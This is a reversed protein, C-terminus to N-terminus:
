LLVDQKSPLGPGSLDDAEETYETNRQSADDSCALALRINFPGDVFERSTEPVAADGLVFTSILLMIMGRRDSLNTACGAKAEFLLRRSAWGKSVSSFFAAIKSVSGLAHIILLAKTGILYQPRGGVAFWSGGM